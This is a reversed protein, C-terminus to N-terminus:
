NLHIACKRKELIETIGANDAELEMKFKHLEQDLKRLYRDVLEYLQNAQNVKEDAFGYIMMFVFDRIMFLHVVYHLLFNITCQRFIQMGANDLVRYYDKRIAEYETEREPIRQRKALQFFSKVREDLKDSADLVVGL